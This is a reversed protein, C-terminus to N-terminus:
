RRGSVRVGRGAAAAAATAGCVRNVRVGRGAAAATAGCVRSRRAADRM